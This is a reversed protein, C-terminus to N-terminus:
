ESAESPRKSQSQFGSSSALEAPDLDAASESGDLPLLLKADELSALVEEEEEDAEEEEEEKPTSTRGLFFAIFALPVFRGVVGGMSLALFRHVSPRLFYAAREGEKGQLLM